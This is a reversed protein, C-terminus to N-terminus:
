PGLVSGEELGYQRMARRWETFTRVDPLGSVEFRGSGSYHNEDMQLWSIDDAAGLKIFRGMDSLENGKVVLRSVKQQDAGLQLGVDATNELRNDLISVRTAKVIRIGQGNMAPEDLIDSIYNGELLVDEVQDSWKTGGVSIGRGARAIRNNVVQTTHADQHLVVAEGASSGRQWPFSGTDPFAYLTNGRIYVQDCGKIDVGNEGSHHLRNREIFVGFPRGGNTHCQVADGSNHHIDNGLIFSYQSSNKVLVGHSDAGTKSFDSIENGSILVGEAGDLIVGGGASGSHVQSDLLQSCRTNPEFLAAFYPAGGADLEVNQVVWYPKSVVLLNGRSKTGMVLKTRGKSDGRLVIPATRTGERIDDGSIVVRERYTGALVEIVDGPRAAKLAAAITSYPNDRSGRAERSVRTDPTGVYLTGGRADEPSPCQQHFLVEAGRSGGHAPRVVDVVEDGAAPQPRSEDPLGREPPTDRVVPEQEEPSLDEDPAQEPGCALALGCLLAACPARFSRM